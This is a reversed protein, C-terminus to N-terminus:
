LGLTRLKELAEIMEPTLEGADEIALELDLPGGQWGEAPIRRRDGPQSGADIQMRITRGSPTNFEVNGGLLMATYPVHLTQILRESEWRRNEGLDIRVMLILDGPKGTPHENGLGRLRLRHGHAVKKPITVTVTSERRYVGRGNCEPCSSGTRFTSGDCRKCRRLRSLEFPVKGGTEALSSSVDIGLEIDIGRKPPERSRDQVGGGRMMERLLDDLGRSGPRGGNFRAFQETQDHERRKQPSGISDYASQISKFREEAASDGPNRDPHHQRALRRFARKIEADSAARDVGLVQYPDRGDMRPSLLRGMEVRVWSGVSIVM